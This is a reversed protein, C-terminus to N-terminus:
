RNWYESYKRVRNQARLANMSSPYALLRALRPTYGASRWIRYKKLLRKATATERQKM